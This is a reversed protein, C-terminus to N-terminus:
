AYLRYAVYIDVKICLVLAHVNQTYYEDIYTFLLERIRYVM